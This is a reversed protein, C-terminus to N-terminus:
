RQRSPWPGGLRDMADGDGEFSVARGRPADTLPPLTHVSSPSRNDGERQPKAIECTGAPARPQPSRASADGFLVRGALSEGQSELPEVAGGSVPTPGAPSAAPSILTQNFWRSWHADHPGDRLAALLREVEKPRRHEPIFLRWRLIRCFELELANLEATCIGGCRAM